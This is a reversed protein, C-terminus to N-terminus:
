SQTIDYDGKSPNYVLHSSSPYDYGVVNLTNILETVDLGYLNKDKEYDSCFLIGEFSGRKSIDLTFVYSHIVQNCIFRLKRQEIKMSSFDYLEEIRDWNLYTVNKGKNQYVSVNVTMELASDSLKWADMLKRISYFAVFIDKELSVLERETWERPSKWLSYKKALRLLPKKWYSSEWIM